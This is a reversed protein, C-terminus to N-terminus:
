TSNTGVCVNQEKIHFNVCSGYSVRGCRVTWADYCVCFAGNDDLSRAQTYDRALTAGTPAHKGRGSPMKGLLCYTLHLIFFLQVLNILCIVFTQQHAVSVLALPM